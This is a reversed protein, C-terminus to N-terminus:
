GPARTWNSPTPRRPPGARRRTTPESTVRLERGPRSAIELALRPVTTSASTDTGSGGVPRGRPVSRKEARRSVGAAVGGGRGAPDVGRERSTSTSRPGVVVARVQLRERGDRGAGPCREGPAEVRELLRRAPSKMPTSLPGPWRVPMWASSSMSSTAIQRTGPMQAGPRGTASMTCQSVSASRNASGRDAARARVDCSTWANRLGISM